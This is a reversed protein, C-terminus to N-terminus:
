TEFYKIIQYFDPLPGPMSQWDRGDRKAATVSGVCHHGDLKSGGHWM